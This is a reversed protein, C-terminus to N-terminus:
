IFYPMVYEQLGFRWAIEMAVDPKILNYCTYLMSAFLEREGTEMFYRLLTEALHLDDSEAVTAIADKWLEDKKSIEISKDFKANKRYIIAAIRRFNLLEHNQIQQALALSEFHDFEEISQKLSEHDENQVYIENLAENVANVNQNQVSKLFPTILPLHGARRMVQVAKSADIKMSLLKLLDNLLMPEEDVYFLMAKYYLEQNSVNNINQVFIDHRWASPSHELMTNVANDYENYNSYLFVTEEWMQFKECARILKPTNLKTAYTTAHDMLRAQDYKAYLIGLETFLGMHAGEGGLGSELLNTLEKYYGYKEYFDILDQLHDPHMIINLGAISALRFEKARVCAFAVEKWVRPINAKKAADLAAQFERLFVLTSALKQNNGISQYLIKCAEYLRNDYCRDGVKQIDAQNGGSIFDELDALQNIKALTFVLEGDIMSDKVAERAMRLYKVLEVYADQGESATIVRMYQSSDQAKCYSDIAERVQGQDLQVSGIKSWVEPKNIKEAFEIAGDLNNIYKLLVDAAKEDDGCKKYIALAEDYLKYKEDLAIEALEDGDFNNLKNIYDMVRTRDAKIATLILLNQLNSNESFDSNHLVIKELLEILQSPMDAEMFAKVDVSVEDANKTDPLAVGVVQEIVQRRHDTDETLVYSWLEM